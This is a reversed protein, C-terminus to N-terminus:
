GIAINLTKCFRYFEVADAPSMRFPTGDSTVTLGSAPAPQTAKATKKQKYAKAMTRTHEPGRNYLTEMYHEGIKWKSALTAYAEKKTSGQKLLENVDNRLEKVLDNTWRTNTNSM